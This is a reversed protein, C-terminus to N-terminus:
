DGTYDHTAYYDSLEKAQGAFKANIDDIIDRGEPGLIKALRRLHKEVSGRFGNHEFSMNFSSQIRDWYRFVDEAKDDGM